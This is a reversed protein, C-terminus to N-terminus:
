PIKQHLLSNPDEILFQALKQDWGSRWLMCWTERSMKRNTNALWSRFPQPFVMRDETGRPSRSLHCQHVSARELYDQHPFYRMSLQHIWPLCPRGLTSSSKCYCRIHARMQKTCIMSHFALVTCKWRDWSHYRSSSRFLVDEVLFHSSHQASPQKERISRWIGELSRKSAFQGASFPPELVSGSCSPM